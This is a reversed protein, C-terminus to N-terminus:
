RGPRAAFSVLGTWHAAPWKPDSLMASINAHFRGNGEPGQPHLSGAVFELIGGVVLGAGATQGLSIRM